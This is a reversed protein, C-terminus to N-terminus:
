KKRQGKPKPADNDPPKAALAKKRQKTEYSKRLAENSKEIDETELREIEAPTTLQYALRVLRLVLEPTMPSPMSLGRIARARKFAWPPHAGEDEVRAIKEADAYGVADGAAPGNNGPPTADATGDILMALSVGKARAVAQALQMGAGTRGSLFSSLGAQTIGLAKALATIVGDHAPLLERVAARVRDNQETTLSKGRPGGMVSLTAREGLLM